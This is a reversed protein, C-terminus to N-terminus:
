KNVDIDDDVKSFRVEINDQDRLPRIWHIKVNYATSGGDNRVVLDTAFKQSTTDFYINLFPDHAGEM